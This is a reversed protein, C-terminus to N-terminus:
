DLAIDSTGGLEFAMSGKSADSDMFSVLKKAGFWEQSGFSFVHM